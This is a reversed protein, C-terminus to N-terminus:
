KVPKDFDELTILTTDLCKMAIVPRVAHENVKPTDFSDKYHFDMIFANEKLTFCELRSWQGKCRPPKSMKVFMHYVDEYYNKQVRFLQHIDYWVIEENEKCPYSFDEFFKKADDYSLQQENIPYLESATLDGYICGGEVLEVIAKVKKDPIRSKSFTDDEYWYCGPKVRKKEAEEAEEEAAEEEAKRKAIEAHYSTYICMFCIVVLFFLGIIFIWNTEM